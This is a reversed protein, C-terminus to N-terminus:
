KTMQRVLSLNLIIELFEIMLGLISEKEKFGERLWTILLYVARLRDLTLTHHSRTTDLQTEELLVQSSAKSLSEKHM